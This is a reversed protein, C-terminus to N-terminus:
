TSVKQMEAQLDFHCFGWSISGLTPTSLTNETTDSEAVELVTTRQAGRDMSNELCSSHLLNAIGGASSRGLGPILGADATGGANAPSKLM